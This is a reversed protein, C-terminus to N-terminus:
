RLNSLFVNRLRNLEITERALKYSYSDPEFAYLFHEPIAKSLRPIMDGFYAGGHIINGPRASVYAEITNVVNPEPLRGDLFNRAAHNNKIGIPLSYSFGDCEIVHYDVTNVKKTLKDLLYHQKKVLLTASTGPYNQELFELLGMKTEVFLPRDLLFLYDILKEAFIYCNLTRVIQECLDVASGWERAARTTGHM